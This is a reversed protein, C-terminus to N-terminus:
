HTHIEPECADIGERHTCDEELTEIQVTAHTIHFREELVAQIRAVVPASERVSMDKLFAHLTATYLHGTIVWIHIDHVDRIEPINELLAARVEQVKVDKPTSELLINVSEKFLRWAWILILVSILVSLVPDILTWGKFYILIGGLIIFVSSFTDSLVHLFAARINIDRASDEKLIFFSVLNTVLGILAIGVMEGVKIPAPHLIRLVAEYGIWIVVFFLFLSNVFTALIEARFYGFSKRDNFSRSALKIAFFSTSLAFIHTFMHGADSLLALSGSLIGGVFELVMVAGNVSVAILLHKKESSKYAHTHGGPGHSHHSNAHAM